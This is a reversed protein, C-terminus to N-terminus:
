NIWVKIEGSALKHKDRWVEGEAIALDGLETVTRIEIRLLDGSRATAACSLKKIGVLFGQRVPAENLLDNYGKIVAYAQALLETLAIGELEGDSSVLPNDAAIETEITGDKGDVAILRDVLRMPLRHPILKEADLPLTLNM